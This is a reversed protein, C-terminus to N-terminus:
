EATPALVKRVFVPAVGSQITGLAEAAAESLDIDRGRVFPGRDTVRVLTSREGRVVELVTGFPLFKHACTFERHNYVSGSATLRGTWKAGYYSAVMLEYIPAFKPITPIHTYTNATAFVTVATAFRTISRIFSRISM